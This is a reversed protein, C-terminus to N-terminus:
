ERPSSLALPVAVSCLRGNGAAPIRFLLSRLTTHPSLLTPLALRLRYRCPSPSPDCVLSAFLWYSSPSPMLLGTASLNDVLVLASCCAPM